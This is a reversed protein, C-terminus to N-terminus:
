PEMWALRAAGISAANEALSALAFRCQKAAAPESWRLAEDEVDDLFKKLELSLAGGFVIIEPNFLSILNAAGRGLWRCTEGIVKVALKDGGRAARIITAADLQSAHSKILGSLMSNGHGGWEEIARRIIASTAAEASLCGIAGYEAKFQETLALRGAAGALGQAGTLVRGNILIGTEIMEGISFYIVDTKGRATGCWAEAAAIASVNSCIAIPPHASEIHHARTRNENRPQRIDHGSDNLNEELLQALPVRTWGKIAAISVRGSRPDVIGPVSIGIASIPRSSRENSSALEIILKAIATVASRTTRQPTETQTRAIVKAQQDVLAATINALGFEVGIALANNTTQDSRGARVSTSAKSPM